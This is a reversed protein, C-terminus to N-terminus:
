LVTGPGTAAPCRHGGQYPCCVASSPSLRDDWPSWGAEGVYLHVGLASVGYSCAGLGLVEAGRGFVCRDRWLYAWGALFSSLSQCLTSLLRSRCAWLPSYRGLSLPQAPPGARSGTRGGAPCSRDSCFVHFCWAIKWSRRWCAEPFAQQRLSLKSGLERADGARM